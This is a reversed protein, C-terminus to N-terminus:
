CSLCALRYQNEFFSGCAASPSVGLSVVDHRRPYDGFGYFGCQSGTAHVLHEYVTESVYGDGVVARGDEVFDFYLM